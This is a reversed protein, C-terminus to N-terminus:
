TREGVTRVMDMASQLASQITAFKVENEAATQHLTQEEQAQQGPLANLEGQKTQLEGQLRIIEAQIEQQQTAYRTGLAGLNQTVQATANEHSSNAKQEEIQLAHLAKQMDITLAPLLDDAELMDLVVKMRAQIDPYKGELKTMRNLFRAATDGSDQIIKTYIATFKAWTAEDLQQTSSAVAVPAANAMVAHAPIVPAAAAPRASGRVTPAAGPEEDVSERSVMFPSAVLHGATRLAGFLGSSSERDGSDSDTDTTKKGTM